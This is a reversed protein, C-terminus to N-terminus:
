SAHRRATSLMTELLSAAAAADRSVSEVYDTSINSPFKGAGRNQAINEARCARRCRLLM